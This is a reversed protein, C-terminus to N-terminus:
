GEKWRIIFNYVWAFFAGVVLGDVFAWLLGILSGLPSVSYGLYVRSLAVPDEPVGGTIIIWWTVSFLLGGWTIAGALAFAKINLKMIKTNFTRVQVVCIM